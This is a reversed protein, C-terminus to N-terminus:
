CYLVTWCCSSHAQRGAKSFTNFEGAEDWGRWTRSHPRYCLRDLASGYVLWTWTFVWVRSRCGTVCRIRRGAHLPLMLKVLVYFLVFFFVIDFTQLHICGTFMKSIKAMRVFVKDFIGATDRCKLRCWVSFWMRLWMVWASLVSKSTSESSIVLGAWDPDQQPECEVGKSSVRQYTTM